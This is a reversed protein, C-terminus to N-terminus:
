WKTDGVRARNWGFWMLRLIRITCVVAPWDECIRQRQSPLKPPAIFRHDLFPLKLLAQCSARLVMVLVTMEKTRRCPVTLNPIYEPFTLRYVCLLHCKRTRYCRPWTWCQSTHISNYSVPTAPPTDACSSVGRRCVGSVGSPQPYNAIGYNTVNIRQLDQLTGQVVDSEVASAPLV